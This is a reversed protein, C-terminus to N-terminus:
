LIDSAYLPALDELDKLHDLTEENIEVPGRYDGGHVVRHCIYALDESGAAEALEPDTFCRRLLFKFAEPAKTISESLQEKDQKEGRTYKLMQPPATLGSLQANALTKPPHDLTYFTIKVSSSGANVALIAKPMKPQQGSPRSRYISIYTYTYTYRTQQISPGDQQEYKNTRTKNQYSSISTHPQSTLHNM